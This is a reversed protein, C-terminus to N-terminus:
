VGGLSDGWIGWCCGFMSGRRCDIEVIGGGDYGVCDVCYEQYGECGVGCRCGSSAGKLCDFLLGYEGRGAGPSLVRRM